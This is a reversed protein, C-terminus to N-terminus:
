SLPFVMRTSMSTGDPADGPCDSSNVIRHATVSASKSEDAGADTEVPAFVPPTFLCLYALNLGKQSKSSVGLNM